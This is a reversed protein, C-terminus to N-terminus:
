TSTESNLKVALLILINMVGAHLGPCASLSIDRWTNNVINSLDALGNKSFALRNLTGVEIRELGSFRYNIKNGLGFFFLYFISLSCMLLCFFLSDIRKFESFNYFIDSVDTLLAFNVKCLPHKGCGGKNKRESQGEIRKKVTGYGVVNQFNPFRKYDPNDFDVQSQRDCPHHVPYPYLCEFVPEENEILEEAGPNSQSLHLISQTPFNYSLLQSEDRAPSPAEAEERPEGSGSAAAEVATAAM